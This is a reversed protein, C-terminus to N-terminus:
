PLSAANRTVIHLKEAHRFPFLTDAEDPAWPAMKEMVSALLDSSEFDTLWDRLATWTQDTFWQTDTHAFQRVFPALATDTLGWQDGALAPQSQLRHNWRHLWQAAADRDVTGDPLGFRNPYKYRDLHHKFPGDNDAIDQLYQQTAGGAMPLWAWPDRRQLAWRMIDLSQELVTGDPLVLVPVTGKPSAELLATPKRALVVERLICSQGSAQLALRARMAYPCRRFSYLVPLTMTGLVARRRYPSTAPNQGAGM